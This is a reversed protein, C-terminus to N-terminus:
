KRHACAFFNTELNKAKTKQNDIASEATDKLAKFGKYKLSVAREVFKEEKRQRSLFRFFSRPTAIGGSGGLRGVLLVRRHLGASCCLVVYAPSDAPPPGFVLRRRLGGGAADPRVSRALRAARGRAADGELPVRRGFAEPTKRAPEGRLRRAALLSRLSGRTCLSTDRYFRSPPIALLSCLRLM